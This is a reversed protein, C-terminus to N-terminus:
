GLIERRLQEIYLFDSLEERAETETLHHAAALQAEFRARGERLTLLACAGLRPFRTKIRSM